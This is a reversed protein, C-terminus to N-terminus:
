QYGPLPYPKHIHFLHGHLIWFLRSHKTIKNLPNISTWFIILVFPISVLGYLFALIFEVPEHDFQRGLEWQQGLWKSLNNEFYFALPIVTIIIIGLLISFLRIRKAKISKLTSNEKLKM